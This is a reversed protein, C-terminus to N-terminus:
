TIPKTPELVLMPQSAEQNGLWKTNIPTSLVNAHPATIQNIVRMQTKLYAM